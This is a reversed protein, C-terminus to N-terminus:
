LKVKWSEVSLGSLWPLIPLKGRKIKCYWKLFLRINDLEIKIWEENKSIEM